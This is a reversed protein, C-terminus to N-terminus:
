EDLIGSIEGEVLLEFLERPKQNQPYNRKELCEELIQLGLENVSLKEKHSQRLVELKEKLSKASLQKSASFIAQDSFKGIMHNLDLDSSKEGNETSGSVRLRVLPKKRQNEPKSELAKRVWKDCEDTITEIEASDFSLDIYYLDRQSRIDMPKLGLHIDQKAKLTDLMFFVKRATSDNHKETVKGNKPDTRIHVVAENPKMQTLVTSGPILLLKKSYLEIEHRWHIHGDIYFDFGSPLDSTSLVDMDQGTPILERLTQHFVFINFDAEPNKVIGSDLFQKAYKDPVGGFGFIGVSDSTNEDESQKSLVLPKMHLHTLLGASEMSQIPNTFEKHRMEHTGHIAIIPIAQSPIGNVTIGNNKGTNKKAHFEHVKLFISMAKAMVEPKPVKSDFVDGPLLIADAGLEIAKFLAEKGQEFSDSERESGWFVGFHTDSIVAIKM